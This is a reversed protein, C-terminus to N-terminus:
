HGKPCKVVPLLQKPAKIIAKHDSSDLIYFILKM